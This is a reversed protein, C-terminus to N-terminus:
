SGPVLVSTVVQFVGDPHAVNVVRQRHSRPAALVRDGRVGAWGGVLVAVVHQHAGDLADVAADLDLEHALGSEVVAAGSASQVSGRVAVRASASRRRDSSAAASRCAARSRPWGRGRGARAGRPRPATRRATTPHRLRRRRRRTSSALARSCAVVRNQRRQSDLCAYGVVLEAGQDLAGRERDLSQRVHRGARGDGREGGRQGLGRAPLAVPIVAVRPDAVRRERELGQVVEVQVPLGVLEHLEDGIELSVVVAAQLDHVPDVTAAVQGLLEELIETAVVAGARHPDPVAREVLALVVYEAGREVRHEQVRAAALPQRAATAASGPAPRTRWTPRSAALGPSRPPERCAAASRRM